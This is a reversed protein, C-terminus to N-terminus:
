TFAKLDAEVMLKILQSFPTRPQWGLKNKALSYDGAVGSDSSVPVPSGDVVVHDQWNLGVHSFAIECLQRVSSLAGTAVVYDQPQNQQLMLWMAEVYEAAYGRDRQSDVEWLHLKGQSDLIPVGSPDVPIQSAQNKICAAAATVKRTVFSLPRRPSEHNFLIGSCAFIGSSHRYCQTMFHAYTKAIAYPNVPNVPTSESARGSSVPGFIERSTAQFFKAQPASSKIAELVLVPGLGNIQGTLYAHSWSAAPVSLAALNYIEDPQHQRIVQSLSQYDSLDATEWIVKGKLHAVSDLPDGSARTTGIVSYGKALLFEALYSGDQSALGIILAKAM